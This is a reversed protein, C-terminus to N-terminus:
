LRDKLTSPPMGLEKAAENQEDKKMKMELLKRDEPSAAELAAEVDLEAARKDEDPESTRANEPVDHDAARIGERRLIDNCKHRTISKLWKKFTKKAPDFNKAAKDVGIWVEQSADDVHSRGAPGLVRKAYARVAVEFRALLLAFAEPDKALHRAILDAGDENDKADEEPTSM